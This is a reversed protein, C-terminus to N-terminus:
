IQDNMKEDNVFEYFRLCLDALLYADRATFVSHAHKNRLDLIM